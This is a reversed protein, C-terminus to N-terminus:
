RPLIENAAIQNNEPNPGPSRNIDSTLWSRELRHAARHASWGDQTMGIALGPTILTEEFHQASAAILAAAIGQRRFAPAVFAMIGCYFGVTQRDHRAVLCLDDEIGDTLGHIAVVGRSAVLAALETDDLNFLHEFGSPDVTFKGSKLAGSLWASQKTKTLVPRPKTHLKFLGSPM